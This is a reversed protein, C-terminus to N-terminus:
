LGNTAKELRNRRRAWDVATATLLYGLAEIEYPTLDAPGYKRVAEDMAASFRVGRRFQWNDQDPKPM